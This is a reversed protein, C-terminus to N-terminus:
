EGSTGMARVPTPPADLVVSDDALSMERILYDSIWEVGAHSFHNADRYILKGDMRGHCWDADCLPVAPDIITVAPFRTKVDALVQKYARAYKEYGRRPMACRDEHERNSLYFPRFRICSRALYPLEPSGSVIVVRKGAALLESVTDEIASQLIKAPNKEAPWRTSKINGQVDRRWRNAIIVTQVSPTRLVYDLIHNSLAECSYSVARTTEVGRLVPCQGRGLNVLSKGMAEFRASFGAFYQNAFSDGILAIDHQAGPQTELCYSLAPADFRRLCSLSRISEPEWKLGALQESYPAMRRPVGDVLFLALGLAAIMAGLGLLVGFALAGSSKRVPTEIFRWSGWALLIALAVAVVRISVDPTGGEIIHAYSLLPWHWLYLPYSILGVFVLPRSALGQSNVGSRAGALIIMATGLVPMGAWWGPFSKSKDLVLFTAVLLGLGIVSLLAPAARQALLPPERAQAHFALWAGVLLEWFRTLPLYFAAEPKDDKIAINLAFSALLMLALPWGRHRPLWRWVTVVFLPWVLYFQEEIGLSWLHLLPKRHASSDFYGAENWLLLNAIFSAGGATHMGLRGYSDPALVFWGLVLTALLVTLLSPFIRRVRREYFVRISFSGNALGKFIISSILFGSIVFFVDVGAFGGPMYTPFAHFLVVSAVAIARLGDIDPRYALAAPAKDHM